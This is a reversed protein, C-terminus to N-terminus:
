SAAAGLATLYPEKDGPVVWIAEADGFTIELQGADDGLGAISDLPHQAVRVKERGERHAYVAVGGGIAFIGAEALEPAPDVVVGGDANVAFSLRGPDIGAAELASRWTDSLLREEVTESAKKSRGFLGM